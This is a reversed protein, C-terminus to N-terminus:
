PQMDLPFFSGESWVGAPTNGEIAAFEALEYYVPRAILAEMGGRVIIVPRPGTHSQTVRIPHEADAIVLDDTNLRFALRRNPGEGDSKLEVAVFPADEVTIDLMEAPTVLVHRGDPERRLISSFLRVMAPRRILGGQHYWSGDRAIRMESDGCHPPHWMHVPPLRQAALADAVGGLSLAALDPPLNPMPM